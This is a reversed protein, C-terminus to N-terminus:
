STAHVQNATLKSNAMNAARGTMPLHVRVYDFSDSDDDSVDGHHDSDSVSSLEDDDDDDSSSKDADSGQKDSWPKADACILLAIVFANMIMEHVYEYERLRYRSFEPTSADSIISHYFDALPHLLSSIWHTLSTVLCACGAMYLCKM